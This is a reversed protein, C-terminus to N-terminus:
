CIVKFVQEEVEKVSGGVFLVGYNKILVSKSERLPKLVEKIMEFSGTILDDKTSPVKGELKEVLKEGNLQIVANVENRAHHIMWHIPTEIKPQIPGITLLIKKVPDYDIIELIEGRKIEEIDKYDGNIIMRHGYRLSVIVSTVNKSSDKNKIKKGIKVIETILPCNSEEKSTYFTQFSNNGKIMLDM